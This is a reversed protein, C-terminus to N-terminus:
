RAPVLARAALFKEIAQAALGHAIENPHHDSPHVWLDRDRMGAFTDLLDLTPVGIRACEERVLKHVAKFPYRDNLRYLEPFIVIAFRIHQERLFTAARQLSHCSQQWDIQFQGSSNLLTEPQSFYHSLYFQEIRRSERRAAMGHQFYDWLYSYQALGRARGLNVGEVEGANAFAGESYADNLYFVLLVLDPNLKLWVRELYLVEDRTNYGEVGANLVEYRRTAGPAANLSSELRRLFTDEDRVGVGFTFSDGVGLVRFTGKPKQRQVEPGRMGLSNIKCVVSNDADFYGRTNGDYVFKFEAGPVYEGMDVGENEFRSAYKVYGLASYGVDRFQGDVMTLRDKSRYRPPRIVAVRMVLEAALVALVSGLVAAALAFVWKRRRGSSRPTATASETGAAEGGRPGRQHTRARKAM